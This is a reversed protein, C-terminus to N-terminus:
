GIKRRRNNTYFINILNLAVGNTWGFGKQVEYEGGGGYQGVKIADYKEFMATQEKFGKLNAYIWQDASTLAIKRAMKNGTNWLGLIVFEQLPPWANPLDWQENNDDLSAPIGGKFEGIRNTNFYDAARQGYKNRLVVNYSGTWLPVFNSPFFMKRHRQLVMDYDYWIGDESDYLLEEISSLWEKSLQAWKISKKTDGLKSHFSALQRFASCLFANLDVPIVRQADIHTLNTKVGGDQDFFWRSSFDWGSEAGSKLGQFCHKREINQIFYECTNIDEYYSEPRPTDSNSAYHALYYTKQNKEVKITKQNLWYNLEKELLPLIKQVWEIDGTYNLYLGVMHTLLPPQSRNLYYVRGGNPVFEYKEVMYLLNEIIGKATQTMESLLLGKIIWYSDWYYFERFRGGPIIVGNPVGILSYKEPEKFVQSKVKRGLSPWIKVLDSAFQKIEENMIKELFKPNETFDNPSWEELENSPTFHINVFELLEEKTPSNNTSNMFNDFSQLILEPSSNLSMDVFTKSDSFIRSRQVTDLLKGQCYIHSDCSQISDSITLASTQIPNLLVPTCFLTILYVLLTLKKM